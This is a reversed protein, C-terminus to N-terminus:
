LAFIVDIIKKHIDSKHGRVDNLWGGAAAGIMAELIKFSANLFYDFVVKCKRPGLPLVRNTDMWPEYSFVENVSGQILGLIAKYIGVIAMRDRPKCSDVLDDEAIVNVTRPLQGLTFTSISYVFMPRLLFMVCINSVACSSGYGTLLLAVYMSRM